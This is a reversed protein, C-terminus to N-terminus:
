FEIGERAPIGQDFPHKVKELRSVYDAQEIIKGTAGRGTLVLETQQPKKKMFEILEGEPFFGDRITILIEDMILLDPPDAQLIGSLRAMAENMEKVLMEKTISRDCFPHGSTFPLITAGLKELSQIENYGYLDPRKMFHAYYVKLGHGLARTALGVACTTKGKGEGTYIHILGQEM